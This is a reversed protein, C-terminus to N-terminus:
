EKHTFAELAQELRDLGTDIENTTINLAPAFRVVNPGAILTMLGHEAAMNSITKAQGAHETTLECGILLGLGRVQKFVGLKANLSELRTVFHDHKAKVGQLFADQNIESLVAGAVAAALPNGGYTTGHTGVSLAPAF